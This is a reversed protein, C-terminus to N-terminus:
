RRNFLRAMAPKYNLEGPRNNFYIVATTGAVILLAGIIANDNFHHHWITLDAIAGLPVSLFLLPSVIVPALTRLAYSVSLQYLTTSLALLGLLMASTPSVSHWHWFMLLAYLTGIIHFYFVIRRSPETKGLSSMTVIGAAIWFGAMLGVLSPLLIFYQDEPKTVFFVGAFAVAIALLIPPSTKERMFLWMLMPVFLPGTDSLLVADAVPIYRTAYSWCLVMLFGCTARLWLLSFKDTKLSIPKIMKIMPLILLVGLFFRFFVVQTFPLYASLLKVIISSCAYCTAAFLVCCYSKM